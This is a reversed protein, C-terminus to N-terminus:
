KVIKSAEKIAGREEDSLEYESLRNKIPKSFISVHERSYLSSIVVGDGQENLFATAFSQNGGGGAGKFPNFRVTHVSSVNRKLRVEVSELYREADGQFKEFKEISSNMHSISDTLNETNSGVLFKKLRSNLQVVMVALVIVAIGLLVFAIITVDMTFNM